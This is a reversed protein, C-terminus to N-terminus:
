KPLVQLTGKMNTHLSCDFAYSGAAPATFQMLKESGPNVTTKLDLTKVRLDHIVADSNKLAIKVQEGETVTITKVTFDADKTAVSIAGEREAASLTEQGAYTAIASVIGLVGLVGVLTVGSAVLVGPTQEGVNRRSLDAVAGGIVTLCGAIALVVPMIDFFSEITAHAVVPVLMVGLALSAVIGVGQAWRGRSHILYGILGTIALMPVVFSLGSPDAGSLLIAILLLGMASGILGIGFVSVRRWAKPRTTVTHVAGVGASSLAANQM